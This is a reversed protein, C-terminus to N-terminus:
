AAVVRNRGRRKAQYLADDARAELERASEQGNWSAVGISVTQELVSGGDLIVPNSAVAEHIRVAAGLSEEKGADPMIIVFEDGGRRVMVDSLRIMGKVRSSFEQLVHDGAGHGHTDNVGKFNDLDFAMLNLGTGNRRAREIEEELRHFLYRQNFVMTLGDTIALRELRARELTPSVTNALIEGVLIDDEGFAGKEGATMGLVGLVTGDWLLPLALLSGIEFGQNSIKKFRSDTSIDNIAAIEGHNVVWGLVGDGQKFTMPRADAGVGSRTGCLLRTGSPDLVRVSAHDGPLLDIATDTVLSLAEELALKQLLRRSLELIGNLIRGKM